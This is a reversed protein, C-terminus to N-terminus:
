KLLDGVQEMALVWSDMRQTSIKAVDMDIVISSFNQPLEIGRASISDDIRELLGKGDSDYHYDEIEEITIGLREYITKIADKGPFYAQTFSNRYVPSNRMRDWIPDKGAPDNMYEALLQTNLEDFFQAPETPAAVWKFGRAYAAPFKKDGVYATGRIIIPEVQTHILEHILVARVASLRNFDPDLASEKGTYVIFRIRDASEAQGTRDVNFIVEGAKGTPAEPFIADPNRNKFDHETIIILETEKAKKGFTAEYLELSFKYLTNVTEHNVENFHSQEFDVIKQRISEAVEPEATPKEESLGKHLLYGGGLVTAATLASVDRVRKLFHRRTIQGYDVLLQRDKASLSSKKELRDKRSRAEQVEPPGKFYREFM